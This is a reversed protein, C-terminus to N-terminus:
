SEQASKSALARHGSLAFSLHCRGAHPRSTTRYIAAEHERVSGGKHAQRMQVHLGGYDLATQRPRPPAPLQGVKQEWHYLTAQSMRMEDAARHGSLGSLRLRQWEKVSEAKAKSTDHVRRKMASLLHRRGIILICGGARRNFHRFSYRFFSSAAQPLAKAAAGQQEARLPTVAGLSPSISVVEVPKRRM